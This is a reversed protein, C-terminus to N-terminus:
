LVEGSGDDVFLPEMDILRYQSMRRTGEKRLADGPARGTLSRVAALPLNMGARTYLWPRGALRPNIETARPVGNGDERLDVSYLGHPSADVARVVEEAVERAPEHVTTRSLRVQGTVGSPAVTDLLYALREMAAWGVVEGDDFLFSVNFNRGPLYSQAMWASGQSGWYEMWAGAQRPTDARTAARGSTGVSPRIWVPSGLDDFLDELVGPSPSDPISMTRPMHGSSRAAEETAVKDLITRLITLRPFAHPVDLEAGAKALAEHEVDLGLFLFDVSDCVDKLARVYAAADDARPLEVVRSCLRQGVRRGWEGADAGWVELAPDLSLSRAVDMAPNAGIATVLVRTM